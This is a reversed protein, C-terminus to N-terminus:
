HPAGREAAGGRYRGCSSALVRPEAEASVIELALAVNTWPVWVSSNQPSPM